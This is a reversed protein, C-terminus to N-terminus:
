AAARRREVLARLLALVDDAAFSVGPGVLDHGSGSFGTFAAEVKGAARIKFGGDVRDVKKIDAIAISGPQPSGFAGQKCWAVQETTVLLAVTRFMEGQRRCRCLWLVQETDTLFGLLAKKQGDYWTQELEVGGVLKNNAKLRARREGEDRPEPVTAAVIGGGPSAPSRRARSLAFVSSTPSASSSPAHYSSCFFATRPTRVSVSCTSHSHRQRRWPSINRLTAKRTVLSCTVHHLCVANPEAWGTLMAMASMLFTSRTSPPKLIRAAPLTSAANVPKM